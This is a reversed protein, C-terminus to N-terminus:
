SCGLRLGLLSVANFMVILILIGLVRGFVRDTM